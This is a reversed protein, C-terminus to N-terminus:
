EILWMMKGAEGGGAVAKVDKKEQGTGTWARVSGQEEEGEVGEKKQNVTSVQNM